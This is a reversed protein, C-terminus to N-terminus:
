KFDPHDCTLEVHRVDQFHDLATIRTNQKVTLDFEGELTLQPKPNVSKDTVFEIRFSAPLLVDDPIVPVDTPFKEM